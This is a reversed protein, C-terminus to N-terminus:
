GGRTGPGRPPWITRGAGRGINTTKSTMPSSSSAPNRLSRSRNSSKTQFHEQGHILTALVQLWRCLKLFFQVKSMLITYCGDILGNDVKTFKVYDWPFEKISTLSANGHKMVSQM